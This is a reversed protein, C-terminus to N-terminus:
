FGAGEQTVLQAFVMHLALSSLRRPESPYTARRPFTDSSLSIVPNHGTRSGRTFNKNASSAAAGSPGRSALSM